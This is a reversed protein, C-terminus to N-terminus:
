PTYTWVHRFWSPVSIMVCIMFGTILIDWKLVPEKSLGIFEGSPIRSVERNFFVYPIHLERHKSRDILVELAQQNLRLGLSYSNKM